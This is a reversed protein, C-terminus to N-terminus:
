NFIMAFYQFLQMKFIKLEYIWNKFNKFYLYPVSYM